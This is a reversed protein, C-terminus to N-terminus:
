KGVVLVMIRSIAPLELSLIRTYRRSVDPCIVVFINLYLEGVVGVVGIGIVSGIILLVLVGFENSCIVLGVSM